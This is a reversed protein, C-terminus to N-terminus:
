YPIDSEGFPQAEYATGDSNLWWYPGLRGDRPPIGKLGAVLDALETQSIVFKENDRWEWLIVISHQIKGANLASQQYDIGTKSVPFEPFKSSKSVILGGVGAGSNPHFTMENPTIKLEDLKAKPFPRWARDEFSFRPIEIAMDIDERKSSTCLLGIVVRARSIGGLFGPIKPRYKYRRAWALWPM